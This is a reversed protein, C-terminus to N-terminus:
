FILTDFAIYLQFISRALPEVTLFVLNGFFSVQHKGSRKCTLIYPKFGLIFYMACGNRGDSTKVCLVQDCFNIREGKTRQSLNLEGAFLLQGLIFEVLASTRFDAQNVSM